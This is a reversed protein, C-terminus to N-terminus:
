CWSHLAVVEEVYLKFKANSYICGWGGVWGVGCGVRDGSRAFISRRGRFRYEVKRFHQARRWVQVRSM